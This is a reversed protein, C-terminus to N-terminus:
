FLLFSWGLFMYPLVLNAIYRNILLIGIVYLALFLTQIAWIRNPNRVLYKKVDM